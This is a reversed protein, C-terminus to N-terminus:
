WISVVIYQISNIYYDITMLFNHTSISRDLRDKGALKLRITVTALLGLIGRKKRKFKSSMTAGCIDDERASKSECQWAPMSGLEWWATAAMRLRAHRM